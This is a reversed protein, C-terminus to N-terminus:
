LSPVPFPQASVRYGSRSSSIFNLSLDAQTCPMAVLMHTACARESPFWPLLASFVGATCMIITMLMM